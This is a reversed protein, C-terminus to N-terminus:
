RPLRHARRPSRAASARIILQHPLITAPAATEGNVQLMLQAVAQRGYEADDVRVTTLPPRFHDSGPADDFGVVSVDEPVRRGSETLAHVVGLAMEDNAAFIATVSPDLALQRGAEYGSGATWDGALSQPVEAGARRLASEWGALRLQSSIWNLPGAVHHVTAHGLSLLHDVVDGAARRADAHVAPGDYEPVESTSVMPLSTDLARLTKAASVWPAMFIVGDCGARALRDIGGQVTARDFTAFTAVSVGLGLEAAAQEVGIMISIAGLGMQRDTLQHTLLGVSLGRGVSLARAIPDPRYGLSKIARRVRAATRANVNAGGRAVRSATQRSVGAAKAVDTLTARVVPVRKETM